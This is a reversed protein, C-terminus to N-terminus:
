LSSWCFGFVGFFDCSIKVVGSKQIWFFVFVCCQKFRQVIKSDGKWNALSWRGIEASVLEKDDASAWEVEQAVPKRHGM